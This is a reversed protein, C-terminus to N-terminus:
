LWNKFFHLRSTSCSVAAALCTLTWHGFNAHMKREYVSAYDSAVPCLCFKMCRSLSHSTFEVSAFFISSILFPCHLEGLSRRQVSHQASTRGTLASKVKLWPLLPERDHTEQWNDNWTAFCPRSFVVPCWSLTQYWCAWYLAFTYVCRMWARVYSQGYKTPVHFSFGSKHRTLSSLPPYPCAILTIGSSYPSVFQSSFSPFFLHQFCINFSDLISTQKRQSIVFFLNEYCNSPVQKHFQCWNPIFVNLM